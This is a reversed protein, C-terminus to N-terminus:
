MSFLFLQWMKKFILKSISAGPGREFNVKLPPGPPFLFDVKLPTPRFRGRGSRGTWTHNCYGVALLFISEPLPIYIRKELRRRLADDLDWPFNTAALVIVNKSADENSSGVGDMQMLIESKMRRSAEHESDSGASNGNM